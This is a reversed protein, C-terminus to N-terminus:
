AQLVLQLGAHLIRLVASPEFGLCVYSLIKAVVLTWSSGTSTQLRMGFCRLGLNPHWVVIVLVIITIIAKSIIM